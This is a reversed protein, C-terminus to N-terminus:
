LGARGPNHGTRHIAVVPPHGFTIRVTDGKNARHGSEPKQSTVPGSPPAPRAPAATADPSTGPSAPSRPHQRPATAVPQPPPPPTDAIYFLRIGLAQAAHNAASYSM